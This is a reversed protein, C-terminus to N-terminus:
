GNGSGRKEAVLALTQEVVNELGVQLHVGYASIDVLGQALWDSNLRIEIEFDKVSHRLGRLTLERRIIEASQEMEIVGDTEPGIVSDTAVGNTSGIVPGIASGTEPGLPSGEGQSGFVIRFEPYKGSSRPFSNM